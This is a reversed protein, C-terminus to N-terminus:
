KRRLERDRQVIAHYAEAANICTQPRPYFPTVRAQWLFEFERYADLFLERSDRYAQAKGQFNYFSELNSAIALVAAYVAALLPLSIRLFEWAASGGTSAYAALLNIIALGGTALILRRRWGTHEGHAKEVRDVCSNSEALFELLISRYLTEIQNYYNVRMEESSDAWDYVAPKSPDPSTSPSVRDTSGEHSPSIVM